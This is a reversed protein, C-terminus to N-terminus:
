NSGQPGPSHRQGPARRSEARATPTRPGSAWIGLRGLSSSAGVCPCCARAQVRPRATVRMWGEPRAQGHFDGSTQPVRWDQRLNLFYKTCAEQPQEWVQNSHIQAFGAEM